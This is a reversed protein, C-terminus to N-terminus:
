LAGRNAASNGNNRIDASDFVGCIEAKAEDIAQGLKQDSLADDGVGFHHGQEVLQRAVKALIAARDSLSINPINAVGHGGFMLDNLSFTAM